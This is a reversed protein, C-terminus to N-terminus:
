TFTNLRRKRLRMGAAGGIAMGFLLLMSPEPVPIAPRSGTIPLSWGGSVKVGNATGRPSPFDGPQGDLVVSRGDSYSALIAMNGMINLMQCSLSSAISCDVKGTQFSRDFVDYHLLPGSLAGSATGSITFRDADAIGENANYTIIPGNIGGTFADNSPHFPGTIDYTTAVAGIPTSGNLRDVATFQYIGDSDPPMQDRPGGVWDPLASQFKVSVTDGTKYPYDPQTGNYNQELSCGPGSCGDYRIVVDGGPNNTVVGDYSYEIIGAHAPAAFGLALVMLLVHKM